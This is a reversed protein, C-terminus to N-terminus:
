DAGATWYHEGAAILAAAGVLGADVGLGAPVVSARAAFENGVHGRFTRRAPELLLDGANSLGGGVVVVDLDLLNAAGALAIGLADGAREFAAIATEDGARAAALLAKGDPEAVSSRWGHDVAWRVVAPGRAVAELCGRGGCACDPGDPDVVVHGLHGANGTPGYLATGDVVAGAGVGTSVVVGLVSRAGRGAGRWHEGVTMAIADNAVRVPRGPFCARLRDRLPFDRWATINLPSVLGEPWRMPGGCGVGVGSVSATGAVLDILEVVAQWLTDGHDDADWGRTPAVQRARIDGDADVLAAAIKTGGIDVALIVDRGTDVECGMPRTM